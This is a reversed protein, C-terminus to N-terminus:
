LRQYINEDYNFQYQKMMDELSETNFDGQVFHDSDLIM